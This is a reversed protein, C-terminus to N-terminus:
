AGTREMRGLKELLPAPGTWRALRVAADTETLQRYRTLLDPLAAEGEGEHLPALADLIALYGTDDIGLLRALAARDDSDGDIWLGLAHDLGMAGGVGSLAALLLLDHRLASEQALAAMDPGGRVLTAVYAAHAFPGLQEDHRGILSMAARSLVPTAADAEVGMRASLGEVLLATATWVLDCYPEASLDARMPRNVPHPQFWPAVSLRLAALANAVVDPVDPAPAAEKAAIEPPTLGIRQVLAAAARQRVHDVLMPSVIAPHREVAARCYGPGLAEVPRALWNDGMAMGLALEVANLCGALHGRAESLLADTWRRQGGLLLLDLDSAHRLPGAVADRLYSDPGTGPPHLPITM